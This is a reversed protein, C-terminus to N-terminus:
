VPCLNNAITHKLRNVGIPIILAVAVLVSIAAIIHSKKIM